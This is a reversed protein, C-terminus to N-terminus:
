SKPGKVMAKFDEYMKVMRDRSRGLIAASFKGSALCGVNYPVIGEGTEATFFLRGCLEDLEAFSRAKTTINESLFAEIYPGGKREQERNLHEMLARPYAAGNMRPNIEALFHECRGTESNVYEGFDFGALGCYGKAQLWESIERASAVMDKVTKASSPYLNGKHALDDTLLQDTVGVCVIKDPEISMLVNPSVTIDLMTEVLYINNGTTSAIKRLSEQIGEPEGKVVLTSSGSFGRSGRVIARGTRRSHLRVATQIPTFDLLSGAQRFSLEVVEGEAVPVGLELAKERVHHKQNVHDVIDANGGLVAVQRDLVTELMAALAFERPSALYPNLVIKKEAKLLRKITSLAERDNLLLDTLSVAFNPNSGKSVAVINGQNPGIGLGALFQLYRDDVADLVCVLDEPRTLVLSREPYKEFDPAVTTLEEVNGVSAVSHVFIQTIGSGGLTEILSSIGNERDFNTQYETSM